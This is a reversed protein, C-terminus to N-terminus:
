PSAAGGSSRRRSVLFAVGSAVGVVAGAALLVAGPFSSSAVRVVVTWNSRVLDGRPDTVNLTVQYTGASAFTHSGNGAFSVADEGFSWVYFYPPGVGGAASSRFEVTLPASGNTPSLTATVTLAGSV